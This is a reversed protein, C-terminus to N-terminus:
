AFVEVLDFSFDTADSPKMQWRLHPDVPIMQPVVPNTFVLATGHAPATRINPQVSVQLLGSGDATGDATIMLLQGNSGLNFLDGKKVTAGATFGKVYLSAGTQSLSPSGVDNNVNPSGAWTGRPTRRGFVPLRLRNAQGRLKAILAELEAADTARELDALRFSATWRTGPLEVTQVQGSLDSVMVQTNAKLGLELESPDRSLSPWDYTTASM